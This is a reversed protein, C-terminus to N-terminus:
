SVKKMADFTHKLMKYNHGDIRVVYWGFAKVKEVVDEINNVDKVLMDTQYKNHDMIAIVDNIKQHATAQLSEWIQGEQFEGDGTLVFVHGKNKNYNKAWAMGKAKSIGMGLSGTSAEIGPQRVEPHGDLGHLRRLM